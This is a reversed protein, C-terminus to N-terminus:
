ICTTGHFYSATCADHKLEEYSHLAANCLDGVAIKHRHSTTRPIFQGNHVEVAPRADGVDTLRSGDGGPIVHLDMDLRM